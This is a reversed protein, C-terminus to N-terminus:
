GKRWNKLLTGGVLDEFGRLLTTSSRTNRCVRQSQLLHYGRDMHRSMQILKTIGYIGFENVLPVYAICIM